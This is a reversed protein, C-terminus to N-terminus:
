SYWLPLDVEFRSGQGLQSTVTIAGGHLEACKKVIPLGLGTGPVSGVNTGRYFSDFLNPIEEPAIGIGYDQVSFVGDDGRRQLHFEVQHGHPSYKIANGLLNTLIQRLLKPDFAVTEGAGLGDYSFLLCHYETSGQLEDTIGQCFGVLDLLQPEFPLYKTEARNITLVDDLLEVMHHVSEQIRELHQGRRQGDLKSWYKKLIGTSSSIIALPTRFEHSTTSIFRSRLEGLEKETELAALIRKEANKIHTIDHVIAVLNAPHQGNGDQLLFVSATVPIEAATQYHQLSFEGEWAGARFVQPIIETQWFNLYEPSVYESLYTSQAAELNELGMLSQGAQNLFTVRQELDTIVILETSNKVVFDLNQREIEIQKQRRLDTIVGVLGDVNGQNDRLATISIYVPLRDGTKTIYTWEREYVGWQIAPIAFMDISNPLLTQGLQQSLQAAQSAMEEPDHFILPTQQGILEAATYGLIEEATRNFTSILGEGDTSIIMYNAVDFIGKQLQNVALLKQEARQRESLEEQLREYLLSQQIAIALQNGLSQMLQIEATQWTRTTSCQHVILLGWLSHDFVIPAVMRSQSEAVTFCQVACNSACEPLQDHSAYIYGNLYRQYCEEPFSAPSLDMQMVSPQGNVVSEAITIGLGDEQIHYILVRDAHITRRVETVTTRLITELKLSQRIRQSISSLLKEQQAQNRLAKEAEKLDDIDTSSALWGNISGFRDQLPLVQLLHWRYQGDNRWLRCELQFFQQAAIGQGWQRQVTEREGPEIFQQWTNGLIKRGRRSFYALTRQNCEWVEGTSSLRWVLNPLAELLTRHIQESDRLKRLVRQRDTVDRVTVLRCDEGQWHIPVAKIEGVGEEEPSVNIGIETQGQNSLGLQSQLFEEESLGFMQCAMPNAYIVKDRNNLIIIGDAITNVLTQLQQEKTHLAAEARKGQSVDQALCLIKSTQGGGDIEFASIEVTFYHVSRRADTFEFSFEKKEHAELAVLEQRSFYGPPLLLDRWPGADVMPNPISAGASEGNVLTSPINLYVIENKILDYLYILNPNHSLLKQILHQNRQQQQQQWVIRAELHQVIRPMEMERQLAELLVDPQLTALWQQPGVWGVFAGSIDTVIVYDDNQRRLLERAHCYTQNITCLPFTPSLDPGIPNDLGLSGYNPSRFYHSLSINGLPIRTTATPLLPSSYVVPLGSIQQEFCHRVLQGLTTEPGLCLPPSATVQLPLSQWLQCLNVSRILNGVSLLGWTQHQRDVVPIVDWGHGWTAFIQMVEGLSPLKALDLRLSCPLCIEALAIAPSFHETWLAAALQWDPLLGLLQGHSDLVLTWPPFAKTEVEPEWPHQGHHYHWRNLAEAASLEGPLCLCSWQIARAITERPTVAFNM